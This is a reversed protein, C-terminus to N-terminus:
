HGPGAVDVLASFHAVFMNATSVADAADEPSVTASSGSFYDAISKYEYAQSLFRRLMEDCRADDKTLRFFEAQVGRHTKSVRDTREFIYAQAVHFAALYAARGADENLGVTLMVAARGLMIAAQDIFTATEPKM